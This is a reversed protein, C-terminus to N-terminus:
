NAVINVLKRPVVIVKRVTKGELLTQVRDLKMVLAEVESKDAEAPVVVKDRVKGNIQVAIEVENQVLAAPDFTPWSQAHVSDQHGMRQWLEETIHPAFPALLLVVTEIADALTGRDADEPYAYIGNVLEMIASIATNFHYRENVDETVKKVTRHRLRNLEQAERSTTDPAPRQEFLSAHQEVMRWVRNLFRYSGEVGADSWELDREPPAAFLIFMRATDAGYKEVIEMPSVVNGKSKSMKAGDKLVMGQTLLSTFPEDVPVLGADYLVKTFFRSYLLHLVAHEIGGIYEDVPLWDKVKDPDFPMDENHADTYRFFYWSSDIFTDMTDTERRASKGCRPCETHVFTESTTLPNRKGDFVVDEPLLVPLQEKPVPVIGCDDCYVIPIPCGWYRQRSILWDRLRYNVTPGGLGKEELHRAIAKIAERNNLGNFDGSNVLKGEGTYAETLEDTVGEEPRIVVRIPLDYKRAFLFDREDHAPVGMVAGTGYDMLVYNAVWIPVKEGTLPHQAYAGTFYGVKEADAATRTIESEKRMREIFDAIISENEKGRILQPVLPHEPALVLYTVGFLTDPRTTFVTVKEHDLEPITFTVHAGESRGIWNRQMAKVKDPWKPLRDLGELLRDAYDTIRLFWQELEKKTVESDCRWCLGNEVQENALVTNCTPCWNVAAKERYALGREYFLLFLWQTLKYYDPLCTGVYREWDYSVGLRAQEERIRKMNKLTWERPNVGRQIAANEAPLGFADAGMPHLVRYGNMRKFRAIVDGITYVRVHGMHLGEGSPYPFQELAYFKPKDRDEDTRHMRREQWVAQWKPEIESPQYTRM